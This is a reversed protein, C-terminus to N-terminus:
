SARRGRSRSRSRRAGCASGARPARRCRASARARPRSGRRRAGAGRPRARATRRRGSLGAAPRSEPPRRVRARVGAMGRPLTAGSEGDIRGRCRRCGPRLAAGRGCPRGLPRSAIPTSTCRRSSMAGALCPGTDAFGHQSAPVAPLRGDQPWRELSSGSDALGPHSGATRIAPQPFPAGKGGKEGRASCRGCRCHLGTSRGGRHLGPAAGRETLGRRRRFGMLHRRVSRAGQGFGDRYWPKGAAVPGATITGAVAAGLPGPAGAGRGLAATFAAPLGKGVLPLPTWAAAPRRAGARSPRPQPESRSRCASAGPLAPAGGSRPERM